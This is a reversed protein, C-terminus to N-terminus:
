DEHAQAKEELEETTTANIEHMTATTLEEDVKEVAYGIIEGTAEDIVIGVVLGWGGSPVAKVLTLTTSKAFDATAIITERAAIREARENLDHTSLLLYQGAQSATYKGKENVVGLTASLGSAIIGVSLLQNWAPELALDMVEGAGFDTAYGAADLVQGVTKDTGPVKMSELKYAHDPDTAIATFVKDALVTDLQSGVRVMTGEPTMVWGRGHADVFDAHDFAGEEVLKEAIEQLEHDELDLQGFMASSEILGALEEPSDAAIVGEDRTEFRIESLADLDIDKIARQCISRAENISRVVHLAPPEHDRQEGEMDGRVTLYSRGDYHDPFDSGYREHDRIVQRWRNMYVRAWGDEESKIDLLGSDMSSIYAEIADSFHDGAQAIASMEGLKRDMAGHVVERDTGQYCDKFRSWTRSIAMLKNFISRLETQADTAPGSAAQPRAINVVWPAVGEWKASHRGYLDTSPTEMDHPRVM